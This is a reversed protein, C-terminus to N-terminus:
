RIVRIKVLKRFLLPVVLIIQNTIIFLHIGNIRKFGHNLCIARYFM